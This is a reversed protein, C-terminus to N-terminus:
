DGSRNNQLYGLLFNLSEVAKKQPVGAAVIIEIATRMWEQFLADSVGYSQELDETKRLYELQKESLFELAKQYHPQKMLSQYRKNPSPGSIFKVIILIGALLVYGFPFRAFLPKSLLSQSVGSLNAIEAQDQVHLAFYQPQQVGQKASIIYEGNTVWLPAGLVFQDWKYAIEITEGTFEDALVSNPSAKALPQIETGWGYSFEVPIGPGKALVVSTLPTSVFLLLPFLVRM